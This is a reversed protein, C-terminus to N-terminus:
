HADAGLYAAFIRDQDALDDRGGTAVAHGQSLVLYRDALQTAFVLNQEALLVAIGRKKLRDFAQQLTDFVAPALGQSPEDLILLNPRRGLAVAIALMQQEGGSLMGAMTPMRDRLIPFLEVVFDRVEARVEAASLSLGIDLNERVSLSLFLNRRGEPVFSVGTRARRSASMSTLDVGNLRTVGTSRVLGAIASLLSTKGAGNPGLLVLCENASVCFSVDFVVQIRAHFASLGECQLIYQPSTADAPIGKISTTPFISPATQLV